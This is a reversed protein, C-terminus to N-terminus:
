SGHRSCNGEYVNVKSKKELADEKVVKVEFEKEVRVVSRVPNEVASASSM